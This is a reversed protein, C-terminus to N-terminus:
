VIHQICKVHVWEPGVEKWDTLYVKVLMHAVNFPLSCLPCSSASNSFTCYKPVTRYSLQKQCWHRQRGVRSKM